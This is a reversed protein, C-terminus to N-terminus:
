ACLVKGEASFAEKFAEVSDGMYVIAQGQLPAGPNGDPDIFKIRSKPFCVASAAELMRQFWKTETANNVLICAQEIEGSEYKEAVAEAFDGMLPQAYPPNMWVRGRWTQARGDDSSTFITEAQVTRNAIESTAPDCDIGGMVTRALEIHKAPTYWENDGSNNAVHARKVVEQAVEKIQEPPAAAIEAKDQEPLAAVQVALNVSMEGRDVAQAVEQPAEEIIKKASSVTRQSVNLMEAAQAQSPACIQTHQNAGKSLGALKAAVMGRQAENLHRRHLNLSVVFAAADQGEYQRVEFSANMATAARYRNRGDLIMGEYIWIPERVGYKLVDALLDQYAQGEILPFINALPHFEYQTMDNDKNFPSQRVRHRPISPFFEYRDAERFGSRRIRM